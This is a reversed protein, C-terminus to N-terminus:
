FILSSSPTSSSEGEMIIRESDTYFIYVGCKKVKFQEFQWGRLYFEFSAEEYNEDKQLMHDNFWIFVHNSKFKEPEQDDIQYYEWVSESHHSEGGTAKLKFKCTIRTIEIDHVDCDIVVCPVFGLYRVGQDPHDPYLKVTISSTTSQYKFREPIESSPVITEVIENPRKNKAWINALCYIKLVTNAVINDLANRDLYFCNCFRMHHILFIGEFPTFQFEEAGAVNQLSPCDSVNLEILRQPLVPLSRLSQCGSLDLERLSNLEAITDPLTQIFSGRLDFHELQDLFKISEPVEEIANNCLKLRKLHLPLEPFEKLNSCLNVHFNPELSELHTMSPLKVLSECGDISLRRLNKARSLDPIETLNKCRKLNIVRLNELDKTGEWIQTVSSDPLRLEVLNKPKFNSPLSQLPYYEWSLYKLRDPFYDLTDLSLTRNGDPSYPPNYFNVFRLNRMRTFVNSALQMPDLIQSTDLFIGKLATNEREHDLVESADDSTWVRTREGIPKEGAINWGMVQILDHMWLKNGQAITLLAKNELDSIGCLAAGRYSDDLLKIVHEKDFGKFFCAIDLFINKQHDDLRDFSIRLATDIEQNPFQKLNNLQGRWYDPTEGYLAQGLVILALPIGKICEVISESLDEFDSPPANRQFAHQSFLQLSDRYNLGQMDHIIHVINRLVRRDRSTVIIRSGSGFQDRGVFLNGLQSLDSVDDLVILARKQRLRDQIVTSVVRPTDIPLNEDKLLESLLQNRLSEVGGSKKSKESVNHLFCCRRFESRVENFVVEAVTTKGIGGMGWIGVIRIDEEGICLKSKIVEVQNYIGVLGRSEYSSMCNLKDIADQVIKEIHEPETRESTDGKKIHCGKLKGVETFADKWRKVEDLKRKQREDFSDRLAGGVIFAFCKIFADKWGIKEHEYFSAKFTGGIHRVDSPDVHYFIPVVLLGNTANCEMIKSLELLCSNSSAYDESLVIVAIKSAEIAALLEPNLKDGFTLKKEDFFVNLGKDELAQLLFATFNLRTDGGRFSLFIQYESDRSRSSSSSSAM